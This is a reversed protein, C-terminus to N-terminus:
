ELIDSNFVLLEDVDSIGRYIHIKEGDITLQVADIDPLSVISNVLSYLAAEGTVNSTQNMFKDNLDIYCISESIGVSNVTTKDPISGRSVLLEVIKEEMSIDPEDSVTVVTSVLRGGSKDAYYLTLQRNNMDGDTYGYFYFSERNYLNERVLEGDGDLLKIGINNIDAIQFLTECIAADTLLAKERSIDSHVTFELSLNNDADLMYTHYTVDEDLKDTLVTMVEEVSSSLSDPLKIQYMDDLKQIQKDTPYYVNIMSEGAGSSVKVQKDKKECGALFLLLCMAYIVIVKKRM